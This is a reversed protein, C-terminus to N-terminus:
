RELERDYRLAALRTLNRQNRPKITGNDILEQCRRQYCGQLGYIMGTKLLHEYLKVEQQLSLGTTEYQIIKSVVDYAM